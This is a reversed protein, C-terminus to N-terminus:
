ASERYVCTILIRSPHSKDPIRNLLSPRGLDPIPLDALVDWTNAGQLMRGISRDPRRGPLPPPAFSAVRGRVRGKVRGRSGSEAGSSLQLQSASTQLGTFVPEAVTPPFDAPLQARVAAIVVPTQAILEGLIPQANGLGLRKATLLMTDPDECQASAVPLEDFRILRSQSRQKDVSM